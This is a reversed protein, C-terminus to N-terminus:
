RQTDATKFKENFYLLHHLISNNWYDWTHKGPRVTYDHAIGYTDLMAHLNENVDHFFDDKGCDFTINLQGPQLWPVLNIVSHDKWVAPNEEKSGLARAMQWSKPFPMIDVGGSMSGANGWIDSHRMALWMAGHGGMSLGTIARKGADPLTPYNADIYPVLEETFFSEMQMQPDTLSNWYWSNRGDPMVMVMGYRDALEPLDTRKKIWDNYKGGFGHLIYVSPYRAADGRSEPTIVVAKAPTALNKTAVLVTDVKASHAAVPLMLAAVIAFFLHKM